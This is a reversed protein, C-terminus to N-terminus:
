PQKKCRVVGSLSPISLENNKLTALVVKGGAVASYEMKIRGDDLIVWSGAAQRQDEWTWEKRGNTQIAFTGDSFFEVTTGDWAFVSVWKGLLENKPSSSCALLVLLALVGAAVTGLRSGTM